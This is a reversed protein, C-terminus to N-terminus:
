FNTKFNWRFVCFDHISESTSKYHGSKMNAKIPVQQVGSTCFRSTFAQIQIWVNLKFNEWAPSIRSTVFLFYLLRSPYPLFIPIMETTCFCFLPFSARFFYSLKCFARWSLFHLVDPSMSRVRRGHKALIPRFWNLFGNKHWTYDKYADTRPICDGVTM